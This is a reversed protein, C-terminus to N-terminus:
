FSFNSYMLCINILSCYRHISNPNYKWLLLPQGALHIIQCSCGGSMKSSLFHNQSKEIKNHFIIKKMRINMNELYYSAHAQAHFGYHVHWAAPWFVKWLPLYTNKWLSEGKIFLKAVTLQLTNLIIVWFGVTMYPNQPMIFLLLYFIFIVIILKNKLKLSIEDSLVPHLASTIPGIHHSLVICILLGSMQQFKNVPVLPLLEIASFMYLLSLFFCGWYTKCHLGGSASRTLRLIFVAWIFLGIKERFLFGMIILKSLEGFVTLFFYRLQAIQFDTFGYKKQILVLMHM